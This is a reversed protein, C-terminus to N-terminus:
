LRSLSAAASLVDRIAERDGDQGAAAEQPSIHGALLQCFEVGDMAVQAVARDPSGVAAPSDLAIYWHGGGAGEVELHLSRGPTGATVLERAPAALGTRRRNALAAPLLRAALDIMGHLHAGSPPAYPYAVANAIDDAHLWCEFARELLSDRLPLAFDKYTVTLDAVGRGAFSVTRILTHSQERWPGRVARNPPRDLGTWFAETRETPSLEPTGHGLPDDLGLATSVLGDVAFLHGIVAAVTAKRRVIRDEEYWKLRVPAHWESEGIDRLLADLRATEADYPTVWDPVPIRAPRRGLCNELVRSRLLPDLDLDRDEHLLAVADRLRLAEDACPACATLHDEVARTEGTSCASLAWAGLLSKLVGHTLVPVEPEPEVGSKEEEPEEGRDAASAATLDATLDAHDDASRRPGPIWPARAVDDGDDGNAGTM